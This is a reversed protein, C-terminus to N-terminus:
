RKQNNLEIAIGYVSGREGSLECSSTAVNLVNGSIFEIKDTGVIKELIEIVENKEMNKDEFIVRSDFVEYKEEEEVDIWIPDDFLSDINKNFSNVFTSNSGLLTNQRILILNSGPRNLLFHCYQNYKNQKYLLMGIAIKECLANLRVTNFIPSGDSTVKNQYGEKYANYRQSLISKPTAKSVEPYWYVIESTEGYQHHQATLLPIGYKVAINAIRAQAFFSDTFGCLLLNKGKCKDLINNEIWKDDISNDLMIPYLDMNIEGNIQKLKEGIVEVKKRGLESLYVNQSSINTISVEDGDILVFNSVGMRAMDIYFERAGGCGVGIVVSNHMYDVPLCSEIRDYQTQEKTKAPQAKSTNFFKMIEEESLDSPAEIETKNTQTDKIMEVNAKEIRGNLFVFFGYIKFKGEASSNVLPMYLYALDFEKMIRKAYEIDAESLKNSPSPHSHIFGCFDIGNANWDNNIVENLFQVNPNYEAYGVKAAQDHIFCDVVDGDNRIGLIGGQEPKMRGISNKIQNFVSETMRLTRSRFTGSPISYKIKQNSDYNNLNMNKDDLLGDVIKIYRKAWVFMIKNADEFSTVLKNWCISESGRPISYYHFEYEHDHELCWSRYPAAIVYITYGKGSFRTGDDYAREQYEFVIEFKFYYQRAHNGNFNLEKIYGRFAGPPMDNTRSREFRGSTNSMIRIYTNVADVDAQTVVVRGAGGHGILNRLDVLNEIEIKDSVSIIGKREAKSAWAKANGDIISYAIKNMRDIGNAFEDQIRM